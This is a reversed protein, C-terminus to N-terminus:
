RSSSEMETTSGRTSFLHVQLKFHQPWNRERDGPVTPDRLALQDLSLPNRAVLQASEPVPLVEVEADIDSEVSFDEVDEVAVLESCHTTM